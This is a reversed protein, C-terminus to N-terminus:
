SCLDELLVNLEAQGKVEIGDRLMKRDVVPLSDTSVDTVKIPENTNSDFM